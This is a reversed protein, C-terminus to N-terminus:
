GVKQGKPSLIGSPKILAAKAQQRATLEDQMDSGAQDATQVQIQPKYLWDKPANVLVGDMAKLAVVVAKKNVNKGNTVISIGVHFTLRANKKITKEAVEGIARFEERAQDKTISGQM